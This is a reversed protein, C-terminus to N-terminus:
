LLLLAIATIASSSFFMIVYQVLLFAALTDVEGEPAYLSAVILQNVAAPTGSLFIAVFREAKSEKDILGSHVMAQVMFVGIVPLILMKALAVTLMATIPLRSLPRPIRLRAFSAGLLILALPIAIGGIFEATDIIFSLPPKGDPGKWNPGGNESIDVFLAKLDDILAIPLAVAIAVTVPTIIVTLPRIARWVISLSSHHATTGDIGEVDLPLELLEATPSPLLGTPRAPHSVTSIRSIRRVLQVDPDPEGALAEATQHDLIDEDSKEEGKELTSAQDRTPLAATKSAAPQIRLVHRAVLSGLPKENWRYRREAENGQPVGPLYDWSLSHAAGCVWFVLHYSVIFISVFSVGLQPDTAPDFPAQQTVSLVVANPLNGWNSMGTVVIIGQWFNRPVYCFERIIAGMAFGIAMYVFATLFLPGLASINQPTFAPVINAFVLLPLSINMTIQSAGKSAAPPFLGKRALVYGCLISLFTKILPMVGSYILFGASPMKVGALDGFKRRGDRYSSLRTSLAPASRM